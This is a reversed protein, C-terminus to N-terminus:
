IIELENYDTEGLAGDSSPETLEDIKEKVKKPLIGEAKNAVLRTIKKLSSKAPRM